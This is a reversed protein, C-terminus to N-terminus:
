ITREAPFGRGVIESMQYIRVTVPGGPTLGDATQDAASYVIRGNFEDTAPAASITIGSNITRVVSGGPGSLIEVEYRESAESLPVNGNVAPNSWGLDGGIRTRRLWRITLNNSGDLDGRIHAPSLPKLDNAQYTLVKSTAFQVSGGTTVGRFYRIGNIDSLTMDEHLITSPSLVIFRAGTGHTMMTNTGRRGRLLRSLTYRLPDGPDVTADRYQIVENGIIAPNAGNLVALDDAASSLTDGNPMFVSVTNVDDWVTWHEPEGLDNEIQGWAAGITGSALPTFIQDNASVFVTAGPWSQQQPKLAVYLGTGGLIADEDRLLPVDMIEFLTPVITPIISPVFGLPPAGGLISAPVVHTVSKMEVGFDGGFEYEEIRVLDTGSPSEVIVVDTPDLLLFRPLAVLELSQTESWALQLWSEAVQKAEDAIFVIPLETSSEAISFMGPEPILSRVSSQDGEQYDQEQDIYRIDIRRPRERDQIMRRELVYDQGEEEKAGLYQQEITQMFPPLDLHSVSGRKVYEVKWNSETADVVYAALLPELYSAAPARQTFTTGRVVDNVNVVDIDNATLGVLSSVDSIIDRLLVTGRRARDFFLRLIGNNTGAEPAIFSNYRPDYLWSSYGLTNGHGWLGTSIDRQIIINTFDLADLTTLYNGPGWVPITGGYYDIEQLIPIPGFQPLHSMSGPALDSDTVTEELVLSFDFFRAMITQSSPNPEEGIVYVRRGAHYHGIASPERLYASMDTNLFPGLGIWSNNFVLIYHWLVSVAANPFGDWVTLWLNNNWTTLARPPDSVSPKLILPPDGDLQLYRRWDLSFMAVGTIGVNVALWHQFGPPADTLFIYGLSKVDDNGSTPVGLSSARYSRMIYLDDPQLQSIWSDTHGLWIFGDGDITASLLQTGPAPFPVVPGTTPIVKTEVESTALNMKWITLASADQKFFYAANREPHTMSLVNNPVGTEPDRRWPFEDSANTCIEATINPLRGYKTINMNEIVLVMQGRFAPTDDVGLAAQLLPDPEQTESGSYFRGQVHPDRKFTIIQLFNGLVVPEDRAAVLDADLWLRMLETTEPTPSTGFSIAVDVFYFFETTEVGGGKGGSTEKEERIESAWIVNGAIRDCGYLRKIPNGYTSVQVKRDELRAGQIKTRATFARYISYATLALGVITLIVSGVTGALQVDALPMWAAIIM